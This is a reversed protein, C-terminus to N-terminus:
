EKHSKNTAKAEKARSVTTKQDAQETAGIFHYAVVLLVIIIGIAHLFIGLQGEQM